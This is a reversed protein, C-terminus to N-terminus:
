LNLNLVRYSLRSSLPTGLLHRKWNLNEKNNVNPSGHFFFSFGIVDHTRRDFGFITKINFRPKYLYPSTKMPVGFITNRVFM